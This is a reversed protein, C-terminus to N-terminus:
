SSWTRTGSPSRRSCPTAGRMRDAFELPRGLLDSHRVGGRPRFRRRRSGRRGCRRPGPVRRRRVGRAARPPQIGAPSSCSWRCCAALRVDRRSWGSPRRFAWSSRPAETIIAQAEPLFESYGAESAYANDPWVSPKEVNVAIEIPNQSTRSLLIAGGDQFGKGGNLFAEAMEATEAPANPWEAQSGQLTGWYGASNPTHGQEGLRSEAIAAFMLAEVAVLPAKLKEAVSLLINAQGRQEESLPQGGVSLESGKGVAPTKNTRSKEDAKNKGTLTEQGLENKGTVTERKEATTEEVEQLKDLSPIVARIEPLGEHRLRLNCEDIMAKIFQGRTQTGAPVTKYGIEERLWAVIRDEFVLTLNPQTLDNSVEVAVFRWWWNSGEPFEVEIKDLREEVIAIFGSTLLRYYPDILHVKIFPSGGTQTEIEIENIAEALEQEDVPGKAKSAVQKAVFRSVAVRRPSSTEAM